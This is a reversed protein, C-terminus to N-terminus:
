RRNWRLCVAVKKLATVSDVNVRIIDGKAFDKTWGTLTLDQGKTGGVISPQAAATISDADTPPYNTYTDRWLDIVVDGSTGDISLLTIGTITGDHPAEWDAIPGVTLVAGDNELVLTAGEELTKPQWITSGQNWAVVQSNTPATASVSRGQVKAVTPNPLTGSLDGGAAGTPAIVPGNGATGDHTHGTTGHFLAVLASLTTPIAANYAVGAIDEILGFLINTKQKLTTPTTSVAVTADIDAVDAGLETEIAVIEAKIDNHRTRHTPAASQLGGAVIDTEAYIGGPYTAM